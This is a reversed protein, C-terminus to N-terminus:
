LKGQKNMLSLNGEHVEDSGGQLTEILSSNGHMSWSCTEISTKQGGPQNVAELLAGVHRLTNAGMIPM